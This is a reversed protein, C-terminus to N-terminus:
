TIIVYEQLRPAQSIVFYFYEELYDYDPENYESLELQNVQKKHTSTQTTHAPGLSDM